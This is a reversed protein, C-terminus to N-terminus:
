LSVRIRELAEAVQPADGEQRARDPDFRFMWQELGWCIYHGIDVTTVCVGFQRAGAVVKKRFRAFLQEDTM